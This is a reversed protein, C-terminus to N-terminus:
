NKTTIMIRVFKSCEKLKSFHYMSYTKYIFEDECLFSAITFLDQQFTVRWSDIPSGLVYQHVHEHSFHNHSFHVSLQYKQWCWFWCAQSISGGWDRWIFCKNCRHLRQQSWKQVRWEGVGNDDVTDVGGASQHGTYRGDKSPNISQNFKVICILICICNWVRLAGYATRVICQYLVHHKHSSIMSSDPISLEESLADQHLLVLCPDHRCHDCIVM